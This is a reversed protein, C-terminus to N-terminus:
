GDAPHIPSMLRGTLWGLAGIPVIAALWPACFVCTIALSEGLSQLLSLSRNWTDRVRTVFTPPPVPAAIPEPSERERVSITVTALAVQDALYRLRGQMQEIEVRVRGLEREVEIVQELTGAQSQLLNLIRQELQQKGAIRSEVDVYEETVEQTSQTQMEVDGLEGLADLFLQYRDVPVRAGWRGSLKSGTTHNVKAIALYGGHAEILGPIRQAASSFDDVLLGVDATFILKRQNFAAKAVAAAPRPQQQDAPQSQAATVAETQPAGESGCGVTVLLLAVLCSRCLM